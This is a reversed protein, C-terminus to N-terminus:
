RRAGIRGYVAGGLLEFQTAGIVAFEGPSLVVDRAQQGEFYLGNTASPRCRITLTEDCLELTAHERSVTKDWTVVIDNERLRGLSLVRDPKLDFSFIQGDPIHKARLQLQSAVSLM